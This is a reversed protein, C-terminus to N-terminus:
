TRATRLFAISIFVFLIVPFWAGAFPSIYGFKALLMTVMQTVYFLVAACISATLSLLLVNKRSRGSLGISLFVVLFVVFPFAFKKYYISLEESYPLGARKLHNIYIKADRSNVAEVDITNNQFTEYPETLKKLYDETPTSSFTEGNNYLYQTGGSITWYKKQENWFASNAYIISDLNKNEDRFVFYVDYLRHQSDEYASAKYIIKGNDSIVVISDNNLSKEEKLLQAQLKVKKDYTPVVINDEFFFLVFSMLFSFVLLPFTFKFLSVGSAFIATLENSAYLNSLTYSSAFLIGLPISYWMTKPVYLALLFLVDLIPSENQIFRWLNMFLDVLVLVLSFFGTAGLFVPIFRKFLYSVLKM